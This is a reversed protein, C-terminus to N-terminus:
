FYYKLKLQIDSADHRFTRKQEINLELAVNQGFAVSQGLTIAAIPDNQRDLPFLHRAALVARWTASSCTWGLAPGAGLWFHNAHRDSTELEADLMAYVHSEDCINVAHTLGAGGELDFALETRDPQPAINNWGAYLRWSANRFFEDRPELSLIDVVTLRHLTTSETAPYYRARLDVYDLQAHSSYGGRPDLLDHYAARFGFELYNEDEIRGAGVSFRMTDHGQDPSIAPAAIDVGPSKMPITSRALLLAREKDSIKPELAQAAETNRHRRYEFAVDLVTARREDSLAALETAHTQLDGEVLALALEREAASLAERRKKVIAAQSPQFTSQSILGLESMRKLTDVPIVWGSYDTLGKEPLAAELLSLLHYSCNETFFYYDFYTLALEYAHLLIFEVQSPDLNLKYEWVDRNEMRAYERLKMYYPVVAFKGKFGGAIGRITYLLNNETDIVAAYSVSYALMRTLRTQNPRDFRLLTHGFMSSPSNPHEAPFVVSLSEANVATLFESLKPCPQQTLGAADFDLQSKLWAYRAPFRCQPPLEVYDVPRASFFGTLTAELERLPDHAGHQSLFFDPGDVQSRPRSLWDNKYLGLVRWVPHEALRKERAQKLLTTLGPATEPNATQVIADYHGDALMQEITASASAGTNHAVFLLLAPLLTIRM